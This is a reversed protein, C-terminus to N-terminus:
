THFCTEHLLQYLVKFNPQMFSNWHNKLSFSLGSECVDRSSFFNVWLWPQAGLPVCKARCLSRRTWGRPSRSQGPIEAAKGVRRILNCVHTFALLFQMRPIWSLVRVPRLVAPLCFSPSSSTFALLRLRILFFSCLQYPKLGLPINSSEEGQSVGAIWTNLMIGSLSFLCCTFPWISNSKEKLVFISTNYKNFLVYLLHNKQM